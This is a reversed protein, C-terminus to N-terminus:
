RQKRDPLDQHDNVEIIQYHKLKFNYFTLKTLYFVEYFIVSLM